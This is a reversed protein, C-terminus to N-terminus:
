ATGMATSSPTREDHFRADTGDVIKERPISQNGKRYVGHLKRNHYTPVTKNEKQIDSILGDCSVTIQTCMQIYKLFAPWEPSRSRACNICLYMPVTKNEKQIDPVLGDCSVTTLACM